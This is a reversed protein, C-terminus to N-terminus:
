DTAEAMVGDGVRLAALITAVRWVYQVMMVMAARRPRGTPLIESHVHFREM